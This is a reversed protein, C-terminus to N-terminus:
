QSTKPQSKKEEAEVLESVYAGGFGLRQAFFSALQTRTTLYQPNAETLDPAKKDAAYVFLGKDGNLMMDTIQGKELRELADLVSYDVDQPRSRPMFAPLTKGEVKVKASASVTEAAKEMTNGAKLSAELQSKVAKGLDVFRRRRESETWDAVVRDRVEALAPKRAPQTDKYFIVAAGAPTKVADSYTRDQRPLTFAEDAFERSGMLESPGAERTFPNLTKATINNKALFADVGAAPVKNNYLSVTLESAAQLAQKQAREIKLSAEVQTRVAAYDAAPDTKPPTKDDAPKVEAPKPFRAPNADYFARVEAETVTIKPLYAMMPFEAYSVVIRPAIQYRASDEEFYKSIEADTPKLEPKFSAYDISATSLTWTTDSRALQQKVEGPLVYGPGALLKQVKDVRVDDSLVRKIDGEPNGGKSTTKLRDRFDSYAKADFEGNQGAFMRANKIEETIEADTAEPIHWQDALYLSATRMKSYGEVQESTAGSFPGYKLSISMSGDGFVRQQDQQVALDYNFFQLNARRSDAHGLGGSANIGVILSIITFVLVVAFITRFHHQFTKQIWSIM